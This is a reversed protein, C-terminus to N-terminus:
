VLKSQEIYINKIQKLNNTCSLFNPHKQLISELLEIAKKWEGSNFIALGYGAMFRDHIDFRKEFDTIDKLIEYCFVADRFEGKSTLEESAMICYEINNYISNIGKDDYIKSTNLVWFAPNDAKIVQASRFNNKNKPFILGFKGQLFYFGINEQNDGKPESDCLEVSFSGKEATGFDISKFESTFKSIEVPDSIAEIYRLFRFQGEYSCLPVVIGGVEKIGELHIAKKFAAKMQCYIEQASKPVLSINIYARNNESFDAQDSSHFHKQYREFSSRDGIHAVTSTSIKRDKVVFLHDLGIEGIILDFDLKEEELVRVACNALEQANQCKYLEPLTDELHEKTGAFAIALHPNIIYQKLCGQIYPNPTDNNKPTLKTDGIIIVENKEVRAVVLSM